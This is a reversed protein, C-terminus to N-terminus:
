RMIEAGGKKLELHIKRLKGATPKKNLKPRPWFWLKPWLLVSFKTHYGGGDVVVWWWGGGGDVVVVAQWWWKGAGCGSAVKWRGGDM